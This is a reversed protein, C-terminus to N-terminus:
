QKENKNGLKSLDHHCILLYFELYGNAAPKEHCQCIDLTKYVITEAWMGWVEALICSNQVVRLLSFFRELLGPIRCSKRWLHCFVLTRSFPLDLYFNYIYLSLSIDKSRFCLEFKKPWCQTNKKLKVTGIWRNIM